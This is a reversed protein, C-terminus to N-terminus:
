GEPGRHVRWTLLSEAVYNVLLGAGIGGVKSVVFWGDLGTVALDIAVVRYLLRFAGLQVLIGGTRVLNSRLLRRLTPRLGGRGEGAFTWNDNLVFMVVVSVEIGALVAIEPFVGLERLATATTVDFLAGAVGVSAFQGFRVASALELMRRRVRGSALRARLDALLSRASM